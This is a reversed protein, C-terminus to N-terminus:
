LIRRGPDRHFNVVVPPGLDGPPTGQLHKIVVELRLRRKVSQSTNPKSLISLDSFLDRATM